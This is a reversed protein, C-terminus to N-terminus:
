SMPIIFLTPNNRSWRFFCKEQYHQIVNNRIINKLSGIITLNASFLFLEAKYVFELFIVTLRVLNRKCSKMIKNKLIICDEFEFIKGGL